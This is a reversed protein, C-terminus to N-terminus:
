ALVSPTSDVSSSTSGSVYIALMLESPQAWPKLLCLSVAPYRPRKTGEKESKEHCRWHYEADVGVELGQVDSGLTNEGHSLYDSDLSRDDVPFSLQPEKTPSAQSAISTSQVSTGQRTGPKSSSITTHLSHTTRRDTALVEDEGNDLTYSIFRPM